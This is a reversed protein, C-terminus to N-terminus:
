IRTRLILDNHIDVFPRDWRPVLICRGSPFDRSDVFQKVKEQFNPDNMDGPLLASTHFSGTGGWRYIYHFHEKNPFYCAIGGKRKAAVEKCGQRFKQDEGCMMPLYGIKKALDTSVVDQQFGYEGECPFFSGYVEEWWYGGVILLDPYGHHEIKQACNSLRWPLSIDDDDWRTIYEYEALGIMYNCKDGLTDFRSPHNYIRVRAHEEQLVLEQDPHDNVVILESKEHSQRLFSYIAEEVLPARLGRPTEVVRGFTPM